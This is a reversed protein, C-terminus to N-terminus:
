QAMMSWDKDGGGANVAETMRRHVAELMPLHRGLQEVAANALRLDKL